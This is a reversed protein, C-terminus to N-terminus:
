VHARGIKLGSLREMTKSDVVEVNGGKLDTRTTYIRRITLASSAIEEVLKAGEAVFLGEEDRNRKDQLSRIHQIEAKTM